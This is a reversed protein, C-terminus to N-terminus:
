CPTGHNVERAGLRTKTFARTTESIRGLTSTKSGDAAAIVCAKGHIFVRDEPVFRIGERGSAQLDHPRSM